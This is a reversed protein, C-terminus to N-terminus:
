FRKSHKGAASFIAIDSVVFGNKKRKGILSIHSHQSYCYLLCIMKRMKYAFNTNPMM